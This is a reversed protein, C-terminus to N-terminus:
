EEGKADELESWRAMAAGAGAASLRGAEPGGLLRTTRSPSPGAHPRSRRATCAAGSLRLLAASSPTRVRLRPGM